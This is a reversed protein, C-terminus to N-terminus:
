KVLRGKDVVQCDQLIGDHTVGGLVQTDEREVFEQMWSTATLADLIRQTTEPTRTEVFITRLDHFPMAPAKTHANSHSIPYHAQQVLRRIAQPDFRHGVDPYHMRPGLLTFVQNPAGFTDPYKIKAHRTDTSILLTHPNQVKQHARFYPDREHNARVEAAHSKELELYFPPMEELSFSPIGDQYIEEPDYLDKGYARILTAFPIASHANKGEFWAVPTNKGTIHDHAVAVVPRPTRAAVQSAVGIANLLPDHHVVIQNVYGLADLPHEDAQFTDPLKAREDQGGCGTPRKGPETATGDYHAKVVVGNSDTLLDAMPFESAGTAITTFLRATGPAVVRADACQMVLSLEGRASAEDWIGRAAHAPYSTNDRALQEPTILMREPPITEPTLRSHEAHAMPFSSVM